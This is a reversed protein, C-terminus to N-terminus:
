APAPEDYYDGYKANYAQYYTGYYYKHRDLPVRSLVGGVVTAGAMELLDLARRAADRNAREAGVVFLVGSVTPALVCADTVAMVPPTDIIVWDFHDRFSGMMQTFQPSGLLESPNPPRRGGTLIWLNAIPARRVAEKLGADGVLVNSLGPEAPMEFSTHVASRRLDADILLVRYGAQALTIATNCALVTKGESQGTSTVALSRLSGGAQSFLVNTRIRRLEESFQPVVGNTVLPAQGEEVKVEPVLGLYPIGLRQTIDGPRKLRSDMREVGFVLLGGFALGVLAAQMLNQLKDPSVPAAPVLAPDLVRTRTPTVEATVGTERARQTLMDYIQRNSQAERTLIDLGVSQRNQSVAETKLGKMQDSLGEETVRAAAADQRMADLVQGREADLRAQASEIADQTKVREPHAERMTRALRVREQQLGELEIRIQQLATNAVMQPLRDSEEPSGRLAIAREYSAEKDLRAAQSRTISASLESLQTAVLSSGQPAAIMGHQEQFALAARESEDLKGKQERLRDRLWGTAEQVAAARTEVTQDIYAKAHANAYRASKVADLSRYSVDLVGNKASVSLGSLFASIDRREGPTEGALSEGVAAASPEVPLPAVGLASFAFGRTMSWWRRWTADSAPAAPGTGQQEVVPFGASHELLGLSRLTEKALWRSRLIAMEADLSRQENVLDSVTVLNLREPDVLVRAGSQYMPVARVNYTLALVMVTIFAGGALWRRRYLAALYERIGGEEAEPRQRSAGRLPLQSIPTGQAGPGSPEDFAPQPSHHDKM